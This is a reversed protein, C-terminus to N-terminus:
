TATLTATPDPVSPEPGTVLDTVPVLSCDFPFTDTKQIESASTASSAAKRAAGLAPSMTASPTFRVSAIAQSPYSSPALSDFLISSM